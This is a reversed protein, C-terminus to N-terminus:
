KSNEWVRMMENGGRQFEYPVRRIEVSHGTQRLEQVVADLHPSVNGELDLLPFIRVEAAVRCMEEIAARHFDLSLRNSYLFLFHSCLALGFRREQFPLQPLSAALYRGEKKGQEYDALFRQMASMRVCGLEELSGIATWIFADVNQQTQELVLDYTEAIRREIQQSTFQYIPDCSLVRCGRQHMEANFSAPGDGCGLIDLGLETETLDFIGAYEKFSRGWPVIKDLVITM